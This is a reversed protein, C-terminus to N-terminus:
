RYDAGGRERWPITAGSRSSLTMPNTRTTSFEVVWGSERAHALLRRLPSVIRAARPNALTGYVFDNLMDVIILARM